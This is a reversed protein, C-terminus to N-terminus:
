QVKRRLVTDLTAAFAHVEKKGFSSASEGHGTARRLDYMFDRISLRERINDATYETGRDNIVAVGKEILSAALPIDRTVVIDAPSAHALIHEDATDSTEAPDLVVQEVYANEPVPVSRNAVFQAPVRYNAAAKAVIERVRKPCSDADIFITM